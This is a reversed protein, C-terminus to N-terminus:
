HGWGIRVGWKMVILSLLTDKLFNFNKCNTEIGTVSNLNSRKVITEIKGEIRLSNHEQEKQKHKHSNLLKKMKQMMRKELM